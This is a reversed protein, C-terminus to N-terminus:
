RHSTPRYSPLSESGATNTMDADGSIQPAGRCGSANRTESTTSRSSSLEADSDDLLRELWLLDLVDELELLLEDLSDDEEVDATDPELTDLVLPASDALEVLLEDLEDM